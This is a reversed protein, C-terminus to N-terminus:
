IETTISDIVPHIWCISWRCNKEHAVIPFINVTHNALKSQKIFKYIEISMRVDITIATLFNAYFVPIELSKNM